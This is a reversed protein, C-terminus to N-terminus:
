IELEQVHIIINEDSDLIKHEKYLRELEEYSLWRSGVQNYNFCEEFHNQSLSSQRMMNKRLVKNGEKTIDTLGEIKCVPIHMGSSTFKSNKFQLKDTPRLFATCFPYRYDGSVNKGNECYCYGKACLNDNMKQIQRDVNKSESWYIFEGDWIKYQVVLFRVKMNETDYQEYILDAGMSQEGDNPHIMRVRIIRNEAVIYDAYKAQIEIPKVGFKLCKVDHHLIYDEQISKPILLSRSMNLRDLEKKLLDSNNINTAILKTLVAMREDLLDVPNIIRGEIQSQAEAMQRYSRVVEPEHHRQVMFSNDNFVEPIIEMGLKIANYYTPMAGKNSIGRLEKVLNVLAWETQFRRYENDSAFNDM